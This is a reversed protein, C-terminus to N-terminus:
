GVVSLVVGLEARIQHLGVLRIHQASWLRRCTNHKGSGCAHTSSTSNCVNVHAKSAHVSGKLRLLPRRDVHRLSKAYYAACPDPCCCSQRPEQARSCSQCWAYSSSAHFVAGPVTTNSLGCPEKNNLAPRRCHVAVICLCHPDAVQTDEM